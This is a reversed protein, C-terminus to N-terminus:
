KMMTECHNKAHVQERDCRFSQLGPNNEGRWVGRVKSLYRLRCRRSLRCCPHRQQDHVHMQGPHGHLKPDLRLLRVSGRTRGM